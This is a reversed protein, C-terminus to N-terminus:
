LNISVLLGFTTTDDDFMANNTLMRDAWRGYIEASTAAGMRLGLGARLSEINSGTGAYNKVYAWGLSASTYVRQYSWSLTANNSFAYPANYSFGAEDSTQYRYWNLIAIHSTSFRFNNQLLTSTILGGSWSTILSSRQSLESTPLTIGSTAALTFNHKNKYFPATNFGLDIDSVGYYRVKDYNDSIPQAYGTTGYFNLFNSYQYALGVSLSSYADSYYDRNRQVAFQASSSWRSFNQKHTRHGQVVSTAADVQAASKQSWVFAAALALCGILCLLDNM